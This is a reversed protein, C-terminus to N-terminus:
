SKEENADGKQPSAFPNSKKKLFSALKKRFALFARARHSIRNKQSPSLEAFTKGLRPYLFLPDYGFGGEGRPERTIFGEVSGESTLLIGEPSALAVVTRFRAKRRSPPVSAMARLLKRCNKEYTARAGAYRASRVGPLGGLAEVELGTDEALSSLGTKKATTLAKKCANEHLTKGDERVRIKLGLSRPSLLRVPLGSLIQRIEREKDPNNTALLITALCRRQMM